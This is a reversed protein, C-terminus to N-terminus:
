RFSDYYHEVRRGYDSIWDRDGSNYRTAISAVPYDPDILPQSQLSAIHQAVARINTAPDLLDERCILSFGCDMDTGADPQATWVGGQPGAGACLVAGIHPFVFVSPWQAIWLFASTSWFRFLVRKVQRNAMRGARSM